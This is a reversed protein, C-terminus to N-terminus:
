DNSLTETEITQRLLSLAENNQPWITCKFPIPHRVFQRTYEVKPIIPMGHDNIAKEINCIALLTAMDIFTHSEAFHKGPCHRKGVSFAIRGPDLPPEKNGSPIFRQTEAIDRLYRLLASSLDSIPLFSVTPLSSIGM